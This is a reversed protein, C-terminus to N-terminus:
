SLVAKEPPHLPDGALGEWQKDNRRQQGTANM